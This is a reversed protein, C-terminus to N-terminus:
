AVMLLVFQPQLVLFLTMVCPESMQKKFFLHQVFSPRRVYKVRKQQLIEFAKQHTCGFVYNTIGHKKISTYYFNLAVELSFFDTSTILISNNTALQLAQRQFVSLQRKGTVQHPTGNARPACTSFWNVASLACFLLLFLGWKVVKNVSACPDWRRQLQFPVSSPWDSPWVPLRHQPAPKNNGGKAGSLPSQMKSGSSTHLRSDSSVKEHPGPVTDKLMATSPIIKPQKSQIGTHMGALTACIGSLFSGTFIAHEAVCNLHIESHTKLWCNGWLLAKKPTGLGDFSVQLQSVMNRKTKM